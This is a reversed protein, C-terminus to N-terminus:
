AVAGLTVHSESGDILSLPEERVKYTVAGVVIHDGRKVIPWAGTPYRVSPEMILLGELVTKGPAAYVGRVSTQVGSPQAIHTMTDGLLSYLSTLAPGFM